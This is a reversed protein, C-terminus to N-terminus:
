FLCTPGVETQAITRSRDTQVMPRGVEHLTGIDVHLHECVAHQGLVVVAGPFINLAEVLAKSQELVPAQAAASAM